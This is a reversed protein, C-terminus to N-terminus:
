TAPRRASQLPHREMPGLRRRNLQEMSVVSSTRVLQAVAAILTDFGIPKVVHVQYGASLARKRDQAHAHATLAIAPFWFEREVGLARVHRILAHGDVAPM